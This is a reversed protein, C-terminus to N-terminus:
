NLYTSSVTKTKVTGISAKVGFLALGDVSVINDAFECIIKKINRQSNISKIM